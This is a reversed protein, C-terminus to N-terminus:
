SFLFDLSEWNGSVRLATEHMTSWELEPINMCSVSQAIEPSVKIRLKQVMPADAYAMQQVTRRKLAM